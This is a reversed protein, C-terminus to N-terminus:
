RRVFAMLHERKSGRAFARRSVRDFVPRAQSVRAVLDLGTGQIARALMEDALLPRDGAAGDAMVVLALGGPRLVRAFAACMSALERAFRRAGVEPVDFWRAAGMEKTRLAGPDLGLWAYRRAHHTVYDYTAAYPPSTMVVDVTADAVTRLVTADDVHVDVPPAGSPVAKALAALCCDLEFAKRAFFRLAAGPALRKTVWRPDSDSAQFSVKVLISSLLLRLADREFGPGMALVISALAAVERLTHPAFWRAEGPPVPLRVGARVMAGAERAVARAAQVMARREAETTLRTKLGALEIALPSLDTGIARHGAVLAEVLVTGSGCFPDLVTAPRSMPIMAVLRRAVEPHLRAPYAHFPHTLTADREGPRVCLAEAMTRALVPDGATEVPGGVHILARKGQGPRLLPRRVTRRTRSTTM